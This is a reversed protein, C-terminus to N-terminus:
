SATVKAIFEDRTTGALKSNAARQEGICSVRRGAHDHAPYVLTEDALTLLKRTISDYLVGADGGDGTSSGCDGILLTDGTFVRDRWL